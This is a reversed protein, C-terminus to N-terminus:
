SFLNIVNAIDLEVSGEMFRKELVEVLNNANQILIDQYDQLPEESFARNWTKRLHSHHTLDRVGILSYNSQNRNKKPTIARGEWVSADFM